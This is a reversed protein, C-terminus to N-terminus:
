YFEAGFWNPEPSSKTPLNNIVAEIEKPFMPSNLDNIQNQNLKPVLHRDLFNDIEDLIELKTSYLSKYYSRIINQIEKTEKRIGGKENRINNILISARHGSTLRALPKCIKNIKQFFM